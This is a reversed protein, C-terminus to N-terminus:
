SASMVNSIHKCIATTSYMETPLNVASMAPCQATGYEETYKKIDAKENYKTRSKLQELDVAFPLVEGNEYIEHQSLSPMHLIAIRGALSEQALEMLKFVQSGALWFDGPNAGNDIAIKIYSFLQPAYQVEDILIPLTHMQFFMAPDNKALSREQLDDLTVYERDDTM